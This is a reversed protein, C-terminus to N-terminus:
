ATPGSALTLNATQTQGSQDVWTVSVSNGPHYKVLAHAIDEASSVSQGGIATITDGAALGANAAPSGSLTGAVAVGTTSGQSNQGGFSGSGDSGGFGGFGGFGNSGSGSGGFGGFGGSSSGSSSSGQLEVGLFATAGIHIDATTTGAEIQQAISVAENIPIAYAQTATSSQGDAQDSSSAATDMGIVQGYSNVLSGGSDGPQIPANTEILGTLQESVSSLEDSATISQNLATVTGTAVSPTGGKGEANGLATVSNGVQVTSSNGLSATTLGSAGELQLVAIDHTADYGVVTATYTKGNGIDTVKISTAGNVVHNNTLVEGTASLVIGTGMSTAGQDGDTSVVDVLAPDVRSAVQSSSLATQSTATVIGAATHDVSGILGGVAAGAALAVAGTAILARRRSRRPPMPPEGYGAGGAYWSGAGYGSGGASGSGAPYGQSGPYGYPYGQGHGSVAGRESQTEGTQEPKSPEFPHSM